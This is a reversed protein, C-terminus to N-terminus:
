DPLTIELARWLYWAGVSRFPRWPAAIAALADPKPLDRLGYLKQAGKRVGYDGTPLVDPRGLAFMLLMHATWEGVGRIQTVSEVVADDHMHPIRRASVLGSDFASAVAKVAAAKQRSLGFTRLKADRQKALLAPPPVRGGFGAKFRREITAAAKGALQQYLISRVLYRYPDGRPTLTCPGHAEIVRALKADARALHRTAEGLKAADLKEIRPM